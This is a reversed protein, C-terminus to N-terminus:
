SRSLRGWLRARGNPDDALRTGAPAEVVELILEGMRFFSQRTSGGPTTPLGDLHLAPLGRVSWGLLLEDITLPPGM